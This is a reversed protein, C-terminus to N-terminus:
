SKRVRPGERDHPRLPGAARDARHVRIGGAHARRPEPVGRGGPDRAPRRGQASGEAAGPDEARRRHRHHRRLAGGGALGSLWRRRARPRKQLRATGPRRTGKGGAARRDRDHLGARRDRGPRRGPIGIGDGGRPGERRRAPGTSRDHVRRHVAALDDPGRRHAVSPGRPGRRARDGAGARTAAGQADRRPHPPRAGWAGRDPRAGHARPRPGRRLRRAHRRGAGAVARARTPLRVPGRRARVDRPERPVESSRSSVRPPPASGPQRKARENELFEDLDRHARGALPHGTADYCSRRYLLVEAIWPVYPELPELSRTCHTALPLVQAVRLLSGLREVDLVYVSFPADLAAFVRPALDPRKHALDEAVQLSGRMIRPAPWPDSRYAVYARELAAMAEDHRGQRALLRARVVEGQLPHETAVAEIYPLAAADGADALGEAILGVEFPGSPPRREELLERAAEARRGTLYKAHIAGRQRMEPTIRWETSPEDHISYMTLREDEVRAWDLAGRIDPRDAGMRAATRRLRALRFIMGRGVSRAFGFEVRNRGDTNPAVGDRLVARAVAPGAVFRALVAEPTDARWAVRLATRFPEERTRRSFRAFDFPRPEASAVLLLDATQTQWVEVSGFEAALTALVTDVTEDDVEYAQLWQLFLGGEALRAAAAAYFDRTYFSALGARYPNSPESFIIDYRERTTMLVERADGFRLHVRPNDLVDRNVPACARAVEAIVPELEVVDTRRISPVAALWGATTGTGLGIVFATQPAPHLLAGLLGGMVQTPADHRANGDVKGNVVLALAEKRHLAVSSEVGEAEWVTVRREAHSWAKLANGSLNRIAARGAGIGSHRWAATPGPATMVAAAIAGTGAMCVLAILRHARGVVSATLGLLALGIAVARWCGPATLVPLLGFGGALAGGIAGVTNWAYAQGLQRGVAERGRGLLAVLLPFQAGAMIAAPLIVIATVVTWGAMYDILGQPALPRMRLALAAIRDGLVFPVALCAAEALCTLAFAGVGPPRRAGVLGYVLGGIGIGALAVALVLGFTYVSGGLIPGLMRYWVLEMLFFAFGVAAAATFILPAPVGAREPERPATEGEAEPGKAFSVARALVAILLNLLCALWLTELTGFTELLSFTAAMAGAVAGLTNVGYLVALGRRRRDAEFQVARAAAPLTGGALFMPPLLVLSALALRLLTGAFSGLVISGGLGLYVARVAWLLPPTLAATLAVLAELRAYLRWPDARRDALRGLVWGGAGLSGMFIAIVAASAATSAGFILRFERQWAVQYVLACFGSGFLFPAAKWASAIPWARSSLPVSPAPSSLVGARLVRRAAVGRRLPRV